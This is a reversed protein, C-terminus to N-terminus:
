SFLHLGGPNLTLNKQNQRAWPLSVGQKAHDDYYKRREQDSAYM